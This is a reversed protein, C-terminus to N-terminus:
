APRGAVAGGARLGELARGAPRPPAPRRGRPLRRRRPGGPERRQRHVRPQHAQLHRRARGRRVARRAAAARRRRRAGRARRLRRARGRGRLRLPRLVSESAGLRRAGRRGHRGPVAPRRRALRRRGGGRAPADRVNGSPGRHGRQLDGRGRGCRGGHGAPDRARERSRRYRRGRPYSRFLIHSAAKSSVAARSRARALKASATVPADGPHEDKPHHQVQGILDRTAAAPAREQARRAALVDPAAVRDGCPDRAGAGAADGGRAGAVGIRTSRTRCGGGARRSGAAPRCARRRPRPHARPPHLAAPPRSRPRTPGSSPAGPRTQIRGASAASASIAATRAGRM